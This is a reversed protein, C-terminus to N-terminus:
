VAIPRTMGSHFILARKGIRELALALGDLDACPMSFADRWGRHAEYLVITAAGAAAILGPLIDTDEPEVAALLVDAPFQAALRLAEAQGTRRHLGEGYVLIRPGRPPEIRFGLMPRARPGRLGAAMIRLALLPHGLVRRMHGCAAKFGPPLLPMHRWEFVDIDLGSFNMRQQPECTCFRDSSHRSRKRFHRCVAGSAAINVPASRIPEALHTLTAAVHEPHGHTILINTERDLPLPTGQPPDVYLDPGGPFAILFGSWGLHTLLLEAQKSM